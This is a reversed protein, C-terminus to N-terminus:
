PLPPHPQNHNITVNVTTSGDVREIAVAAPDHSDQTTNMSNPPTEETTDAISSIQLPKKPKTGCCLRYSGRSNNKPKQSPPYSTETTHFDPPQQSPYAPPYNPYAPPFSSPTQNAPTTMVPHSTRAPTPRTKAPLPTPQRKAGFAPIPPIVMKPRPPAATRAAGRGPM